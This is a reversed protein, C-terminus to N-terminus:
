SPQNPARRFACCTPRVASLLRRRHRRPSFSISRHLRRVHRIGHESEDSLFYAVLVPSAGEHPLRLQYDQQAAYAKLKALDARRQKASGGSDMVAAIENALYPRIAAEMKAFDAAQREQTRLVAQQKAGSEILDFVPQPDDQVGAPTAPADSDFVLTSLIGHEGDAVHKSM